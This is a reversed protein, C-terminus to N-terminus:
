SPTADENTIEGSKMLRLFFFFNMLYAILKIKCNMNRSRFINKKVSHSQGPHKDQFPAKYLIKSISYKKMSKM